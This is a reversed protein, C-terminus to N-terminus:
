STPAATTFVSFPALRVSTTPPWPMANLWARPCFMYANPQGAAAGYSPV